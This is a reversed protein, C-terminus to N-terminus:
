GSQRDAETTRHKGAGADRQQLHGVTPPRPSGPSHASSVAIAGRMTPADDVAPKPEVRVIQDAPIGSPRRTPGYSM